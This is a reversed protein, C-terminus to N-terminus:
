NLYAGTQRMTPRCNMIIRDNAMAVSTPAATAAPSNSAQGCGAGFAGGAVADPTVAGTAAAAASAHGMQLVMSDTPASASQASSSGSKAAPLRAKAAASQFAAIADSLNAASRSGRLASM